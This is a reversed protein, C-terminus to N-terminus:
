LVVIKGFRMFSDGAIKFTYIGSSFINDIVIKEGSHMQQKKVMKGDINFIEVDFNELGSGSLTIYNGAIVPNPFFNVNINEPTQISVATGNLNVNDIYLLQGWGGINRFAIIANSEGIFDNLLITDTRWEDDEPIFYGGSYTPATALDFGGKYYVQTFTEGCDTTILVALSDIYGSAYPTYAIDFTLIPDTIDELNIFARLDSYGGELNVDYNNALASNSSTSYGGAFDTKNWISAGSNVGSTTWYDPPFTAEFDEAINTRDVEQIEITITNSSSNGNIDTVTLTANHMGISNFVIKPNRIDSTAPTADEFTWSWTAGEHNLFSYDEFYFTDTACFTNFKNVTAQAIPYAPDEYLASEWIGKGYTAIRIKGDRYFPKLINSNTYFPLGNNFENWGLSHNYYYISYNTAYYLGGDTGAVYSISRCDESNLISNTINSWSTGSNDSYFIKSGDYAGPYALYIQEPNEPNIAILIRDKSGGAVSPITIESFSIGGDTTKWLKGSGSAAPAQTVYMIDPNNRAIEIYRVSANANTGFTYLANFSSGGDESKWLKHEKGTFCINYCSPYFELESSAATWYSENPEIGFSGYLIPEGISEPIIASGIQTSYIKRNNGPNVYGSAPEGGGLQLYNGAEYPSYFAIVGNHYLGGVTVDENWGQGFGWYEAGHIGASKRLNESFFFDNSYNVGGDSTIWYGNENARFDQMDPHMDLTSSIYGGLPTFTNGGDDSKWLNLGGILINDADDNSAMIACNYFGQHYDWGVWGIALNQHTANYPGGDPGNPLTWTEGGDESRYIGIYGYDGSKADGILYVYIRNPDAPTVAIRSGGDYRSPDTSSYWGNDKLIFTEGMDTSVFFESRKETANNKLLYVTNDDDSKLKIDWAKASFLHTWTDGADTSRYVGNEGVIIVINTNSPNVLIEHPWLGTAYLMSNWTVGGNTTKFLSYGNAAYVIDANTPDIEIAEVGSFYYDHTVSEWTAGADTSKYIEGPETGCYLINPNSTSQDISYVNTQDNSFDGEQNYVQYPGVNTWDGSSSRTGSIHKNRMIEDQAILTEADPLIYTGDTQIYPEVFRRWRKYYQTHYNKEFLHNKYYKTYADEVTFVNPNDAYMLQAWHPAEAIETPAPPALYIFQAQSFSISLVFICLTILYRYLM